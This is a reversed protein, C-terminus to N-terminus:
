YGIFEEIKLNKFNIGSQLLIPKIKSVTESKGSLYCLTNEFNVINNKICASDIKDVQIISLNENMQKISKLDELYPTNKEDSYIVTIKNKLKEETAFLIMGIIPIIGINETVFVINKDNNPLVFMGYPGKIQIESNLPIQNISKKFGSDSMQFTFSIYDSNNPSSLINFIRTNGKPDDVLLSSLTVQLHQGAQFPITKGNWKCTVELLGEPLLRRQVIPINITDAM